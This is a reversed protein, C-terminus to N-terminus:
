GQTVAYETISACATSSAEIIQGCGAVEQRAVKGGIRVESRTALGYRAVSALGTGEACWWRWLQRADSMVVNRTGDANPESVSAIRGFFCGMQSSRVLCWQGISWHEGQNTDASKQVGAMGFMAALERAQKITLNDLNFESM